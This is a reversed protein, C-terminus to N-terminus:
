LYFRSILFDAVSKINILLILYITIQTITLLQNLRSHNIKEKFALYCAIISNFIATLIAIFFLNYHPMLLIPFIIAALFSGIYDLFLVRPMSINQQQQALKILFPLEIGSLFGILIILGHNFINIAPYYIPILYNRALFDFLLILIPGLGGLLSLALEIYSLNKFTYDKLFYDISISGIGLSAIYLGITINYRIITDGMITSLSQALMLEYLLSCAAVIITIIYIEIKSLNNKM